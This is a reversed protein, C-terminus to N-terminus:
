AQKTATFGYPVRVATAASVDYTFAVHLLHDPIMMEKNLRAVFNEPTVKVYGTPSGDPKAWEDDEAALINRGNLHVGEVQPIGTAHKKVVVDISVPHRKGPLAYFSSANPLLCEAIFDFSPQLEAYRQLAFLEAFRENKFSSRLQGSSNFFVEFLMGDLIAKRRKSDLASTDRPFNEVYECAANAGGCAAQYINRGIVFLKDTSCQSARELTFQEVAPNQTYFNYSKLAKIMKGSYKAADPVFLSDKLASGSYIDIRAGVSPNFFFEGSLSTHEWSIQAGGTVASLSNRVRKFMSEIPVDATKIHRLLAETYRGNRSGPNDDAIQGPSTAYAVLTGKPAYVPALGREVVARSWSNSFPNNRCADLVILSTDIGAAEMVEIVQNLPLSTYKASAEDVTGMDVGALYNEGKIQLGHGAFFFLGISASQLRSGFEELARAMDETKCDILKVVDFGCETLKQAIDDADNGPNKLKRASIYDANGIVLAKQTSAM